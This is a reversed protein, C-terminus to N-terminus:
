VINANRQTNQRDREIAQIILEIQSNEKHERVEKSECSFFGTHCASNCTEFRKKCVWLISVLVLTIVNAGTGYLLQTNDM